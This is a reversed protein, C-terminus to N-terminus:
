MEVAGSTITLFQKVRFRFLSLSDARSDHWYRRKNARRDHWYATNNARGDHPYGISCTYCTYSKRVLKRICEYRVCRKYFKQANKRGQVTTHIALAVPIVPILNELLSVYANMAYVDRIFNRHM